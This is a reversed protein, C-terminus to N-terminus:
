VCRWLKKFHKSDLYGSETLEIGVNGAAIGYYRIINLIEDLANSKMVQIYSLNINMRFHPIERQWKKCVAVSQQLM